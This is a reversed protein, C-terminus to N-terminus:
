AASDCLPAQPGSCGGGLVAGEKDRSETQLATPLSPGKRPEFYPHQSFGSFLSDERYPEPCRNLAKGVRSSEPFSLGGRHVPGLQAEVLM